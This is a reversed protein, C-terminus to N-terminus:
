MDDQPRCVCLVSNGVTKEHFMDIALQVNASQHFELYAINRKIKRDKRDRLIRVHRVGGIKDDFLKFIDEEELRMDFGTIKIDTDKAERKRKNDRDNIFTNQNMKEIMIKREKEQEELMRTMLEEKSMNKNTKLKEKLSDQNYATKRDFIKVPNDIRVIGSEVTGREQGTCVGFKKMETRKKIGETGTKILKTRKIELTQQKESGDSKNIINVIRKIYTINPDKDKKNLIEDKIKYEIDQADTM